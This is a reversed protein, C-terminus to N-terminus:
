TAASDSVYPNTENGSRTVGLTEGLAALFLGDDTSATFNAFTTPSKGNLYKVYDGASSSEESSANLVLTGDSIDTWFLLSSDIDVMSSDDAGVTITTTNDHYNKSDVVSIVSGFKTHNHLMKKRSFLEDSCLFVYGYKQAFTLSCKEITASEPQELNYQSSDFTYIKTSPDYTLDELNLLIHQKRM